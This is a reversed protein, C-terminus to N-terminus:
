NGFHCSPNSTRVCGDMFLGIEQSIRIVSHQGTFTLLDNSYIYIAVIKITYFHTLCYNHKSDAKHYMYDKKAQEDVRLVSIM